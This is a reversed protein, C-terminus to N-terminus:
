GRDRPSPYTYLLCINQKHIKDHDVRSTKNNNSATQNYKELNKDLKDFAKTLKELTKDLADVDVGEQQSEDIAM